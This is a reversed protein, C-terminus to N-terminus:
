MSMSEDVCTCLYVNVHVRALAPVCVFVYICARVFVCLNGGVSVYFNLGHMVSGIFGM